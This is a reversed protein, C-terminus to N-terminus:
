WAGSAALVSNGEACPCRAPLSGGGRVYATSQWKIEIEANLVERSQASSSSSSLASSKNIIESSSKV